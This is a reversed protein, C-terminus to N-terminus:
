LRASAIIIVYQSNTHTDTTKIYGAHLARHAMTYDTAEGARGYKEVDDWLPAPNEFLFFKIFM